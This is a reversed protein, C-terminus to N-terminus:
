FVMPNGAFIDTVFDKVTSVRLSGDIYASLTKTAADWQIRMSHWAGDEINDNGSIATVPGAINNVSNHNLNGNLQIAIHDYAPDNDNGNQWTDITVGVAPTIGNYGLGGGISGVSTSIPQLVFAIGDAGPSNSAGLFVDFNFNFSQTLDIRINNWVSGSQNNVAQTLRYENCSITTANGNVTYQQSVLNHNIGILLIVTLFLKITTKIV